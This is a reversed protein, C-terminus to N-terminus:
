ETAARLSMTANLTAEAVPSPQAKKNIAILMAAAANAVKRLQHARFDQPNPQEFDIDDLSAAFAKFWPRDAKEILESFAAFGIIRFRRPSEADRDIMADGIADQWERYILAERYILNAIADDLTARLVDDGPPSIDLEGAIFNALARATRLKGADDLDVADKLDAGEHGLLAHAKVEFRMGAKVWWADDCASTDLSWIRCLQRIRDQEVSPGDALAGRFAAIQKAIPPAYSPNHAAHSSLEIDMGRIWGILSAIRYLTSTRKYANFDRPLTSTKLFAHRQDVFIEKSRWVLKECAEALPGVYRQFIDADSRKKAHKIKIAELGLDKILIVMLGSVAGITAALTTANWLWASTVLAPGAVPIVTNAQAAIAVLFEIM